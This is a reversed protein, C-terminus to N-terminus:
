RREKYAFSFHVGLYQDRYEKPLPPMPASELVARQAAQDFMFLGSSEEVGISTVTGDRQIRFYVRCFRDLGQSGEPVRWNAAIKRRVRNVYPAFPFNDTDFEMQGTQAEPTSEAVQATDPVTEEIDTKPVEKAKHKKPKPKPPRPKPQVPPPPMEEDQKEEPEPKAEEKPKQKPPQEVKVPPQAQAPEAVLTVNYVQRPVYKVERFSVWNFAILSIVVHISLSIILASRM